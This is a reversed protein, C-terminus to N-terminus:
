KLNFNDIISSVKEDIEVTLKIQWEGSTLESRDIDFGKCTSSSPMAYTEATRTVVIDGNTLELTCLGGNSITGSIISRIEVPNSSTNISAISIGLENDLITESTTKKQLEGAAKQEPTPPNNDITQTQNSTPEIVKPQGIFNIIQLKELVVFLFVALLMVLLTALLTKRITKKKKTKM